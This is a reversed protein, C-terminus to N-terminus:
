TCGYHYVHICGGLKFPLCLSVSFCSVATFYWSNWIGGSTVTNCILMFLNSNEAGWFRSHCCLSNTMERTLLSTLWSHFHPVKVRRLPLCNATLHRTERCFRLWNPLLGTPATKSDFVLVLWHLAQLYKSTVSCFELKNLVCQCSKLLKKKHM